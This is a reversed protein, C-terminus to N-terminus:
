RGLALIAAKTEAPVNVWRTAATILLQVRLSEATKLIQEFWAVYSWDRPPSSFLRNNAADWGVGMAERYILAFKQHSPVVYLREENDIGIEVIEDSKM